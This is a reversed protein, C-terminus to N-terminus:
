CLNAHSSTTRYIGFNQWHNQRRRKIMFDYGSRISGRVDHDSVHYGIIHIHVYPIGNSFRNANKQLNRVFFFVNEFEDVDTDHQPFVSMQGSCQQRGNTTKDSILRDNDSRNTISLFCLPCLRVCRPPDTLLVWTPLLFTARVNKTKPKLQTATLM